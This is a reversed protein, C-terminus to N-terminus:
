AQFVQSMRGVSQMAQWLATKLLLPFNIWPARSRNTAPRGVTIARPAELLWIVRRDQNEKKVRRCTVPTTLMVKRLQPDGESIQETDPFHCLNHLNPCTHSRVLVGDTKVTETLNRRWEIANHSLIYMASQDEEWWRYVQHNGRVTRFLQRLRSLATGRQKRVNCAKNFTDKWFILADDCVITPTLQDRM